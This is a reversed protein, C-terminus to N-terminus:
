QPLCTLVETTIDSNARYEAVYHEWAADMDQRPVGPANKHISLVQSPSPTWTRGGDASTLVPATIIENATYGHDRYWKLHDSAAAQFGAMSGTPSITNIRVVSRVTGAPCISAAPQAFAADTWTMSLLGFAAVIVTRAHM